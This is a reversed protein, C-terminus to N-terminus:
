YYADSVMQVPGLWLHKSQICQARSELINGHYVVQLLLTKVRCSGITSDWKTSVSTTNCQYFFLHHGLSRSCSAFCNEKQINILEIIWGARAYEDAREEQWLLL